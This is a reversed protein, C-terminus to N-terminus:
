ILGPHRQRAAPSHETGGACMHVQVGQANAAAGSCAAQQRAGASDAVSGCLQWSGSAGGAPLAALGRCSAHAASAVVQGGHQAGATVCFFECRLDDAARWKRRPVKIGVQVVRRQTLLQRRRRRGCQLLQVGVQVCVQHDHVCFRRRRLRRGDRQRQSCGSLCGPAAAGVALALRRREHVSGPQAAPLSPTRVPRLERGPQPCLRRAFFANPCAYCRRM